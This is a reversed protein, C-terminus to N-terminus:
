GPQICEFPLTYQGIFDYDLSDDDLVVFRILALEPFAIEFEFAENFQPNEGLSNMLCLSFIKDLFILLNCNHYSTKTRVEDCDRPVGFIQVVIYPDVSNAKLEAQEPRPLHLASIVKECFFICDM